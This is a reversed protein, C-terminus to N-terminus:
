WVLNIRGRTGFSQEPMFNMVAVVEVRRKRKALPDAKVTGAKVTGLEPRALPMIADEDLDSDVTVEDVVREDAAAGAVAVDEKEVKGEIGKVETEPVPVVVSADCIGRPLGVTTIKRRWM